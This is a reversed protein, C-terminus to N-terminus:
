IVVSNEWHIPNPLTSYWEMENEADFFFIAQHVFLTDLLPKHEAQAFHMTNVLGCANRIETIGSLRTLFQAM